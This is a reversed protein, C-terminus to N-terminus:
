GVQGAPGASWEETTLTIAMGSELFDGGLKVSVLSPNRLAHDVALADTPCTAQAEVELRKEAEETIM